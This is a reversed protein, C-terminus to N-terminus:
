VRTVPKEEKILQQPQYLRKQPQRNLCGLLTTGLLLTVMISFFPGNAIVGLTTM